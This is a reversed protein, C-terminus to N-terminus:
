IDTIVRSVHLLGENNYIQSITNSCCQKKICMYIQEQVPLKLFFKATILLQDFTNQYDDSKEKQWFQIM